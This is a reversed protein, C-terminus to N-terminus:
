YNSHQKLHIKLCFMLKSKFDLKKKTQMGYHYHYRKQFTFFHTIVSNNSQNKHENTFCFHIICLRLLFFKSRDLVIRKWCFLSFHIRVEYKEEKLVFRFINADQVIQWIKLWKNKFM